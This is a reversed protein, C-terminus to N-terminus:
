FYESEDDTGKKLFRICDGLFRGNATVPNTITKKSFEPYYHTRLYTFLYINHKLSSFIGPFYFCLLCFRLGVASSLHALNQKQLYSLNQPLYAQFNAKYSKPIYSFNKYIEKSHGESVEGLFQFSNVAFPQRFKVHRVSGEM